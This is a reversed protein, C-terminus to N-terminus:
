QLAFTAYDINWGPNDENLTLVQQGVPLTVTATVTTWNQWGGTETVNVSGSLNTGASNAIHFGDTVGSPSAVEFTVTYTGATAVNVTYKFWQGAATWGLDNGTAPSSATELDVGDSRYSNDTGNVSAVSFGVGQGGTDYNEALVTGPIAAPTGGYPANALTFVATDINWGANDQNFTLTQTGAALTVAATVTAWTQWGGTAPINVSGSVNTGSSNAIHFADTVASPAAVLFSVTYTGASAVNVTYKFWQGSATWGLDNGTAPSTATELDVGDSRYSNDTGNVSTVNYALAQGGTDYNEAKVTGPIAAPTGGYPSEATSGGTVSVLVTTATSTYTTSGPTYTVLLTDEGSGLTGAPITIAASGNSLTTAASSYNGSTLVVSGTPTGSAGSVAVTVTLSETTTISSSSLTAALTPTASSSNISFGINCNGSVLESSGANDVYAQQGSALGTVTNCSLYTNGEANSDIAFGDGGPSGVTNNSIVTGTGGLVDVGDFMADLDINGRVNMNTMAPLGAPSATSTLGVGIGPNRNGYGFSGGRILTNGQVWATELPAGFGTSDYGGIYIGNGKVGDHVYNNAVLDNAGGYVGLLNAWWSAVVTNNVVTPNIMESQTSPNDESDNIAIGDDGEGRIFNNKVTLNNGITYGPGGNGNNINIGDAWNNNIRSNEITGNTGAAWVGVGSHQLWLSNFTWNNGNPSVAAAYPNGNTTFRGQANGDVSFNALSTSTTTLPSNSASTPMPPNYYITSYWMGAGQISIGTATLGTETNLYFTGEPIWVVQGSSQAQNICNQIASTSDAAGSAAAGNTPTSSAVAGCNTTISLSNAPQALPAPPAELDIVDINYYTASNASDKQLTITSGPAIAAGTIFAHTEDWFVHPTGSSPTQSMGNYDSSTEYVWTQISNVNLAQRFTGNVYLDLTSTIGGGGSSDPISYRVNIFTINQGTNNTWTVSQGTEGLNVYAHGSAELQPSSFETTPPSTLSVISAGGGLTGSEAEYSVFPTNAGIQVPAIQWEQNSDGNVVTAQEVSGGSSTSGVNDLAMGSTSVVLQYYGSGLSTITWQQNINTTSSYSQTAAAGSTTSGGNDLAMGSSLNILNYKGNSLLNIQWQQNTNGTGLSTQALATGTTTSGGNDLALGSTKSVLTYVTGSTISTQAFTFPTGALIAVIQAISALLVFRSLKSM